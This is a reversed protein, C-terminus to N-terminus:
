KSGEMYQAAIRRLEAIVEDPQPSTDKWPWPIKVMTPAVHRYVIIPDQEMYEDIYKVVILLGRSPRYEVSWEEAYWEIVWGNM